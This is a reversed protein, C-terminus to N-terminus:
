DNSIEEIRLEMDRALEIFTDLSCIHEDDLLRRECTVRGNEIYLVVRWTFDPSIFLEINLAPLPVLVDRRVTNQQLIM